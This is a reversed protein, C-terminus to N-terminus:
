KQVDFMLVSPIKVLKRGRVKKIANYGEFSVQCTSDTKMVLTAKQSESGLDNALNISAEKDNKIKCSTITWIGYIDGHLYGHMPGFLEMGPVEIDEAYLNMNILVSDSPCYLKMKWTDGYTSLASVCCVLFLSIVTKRM